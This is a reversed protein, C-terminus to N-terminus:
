GVNRVKFTWKSWICTSSSFIKKEQFFFNWENQVFNLNKFAYHFLLFFSFFHIFFHFSADWSFLLVLQFGSFATRAFIFWHLIEVFSHRNRSPCFQLWSSIRSFEFVNVLPENHFDDQSWSLWPTWKNPYKTGTKM